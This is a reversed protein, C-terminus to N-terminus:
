STLLGKAYKAVTLAALRAIAAANPSCSTLARSLEGVPMDAYSGPSTCAGIYVHVREIRAMAILSVLRVGRAELRRRLAAAPRDEQDQPDQRDQPDQPDKCEFFAGPLSWGSPTTVLVNGGPTVIVGEAKDYATWLSMVCRSIIEAISPRDQTGLHGAIVCSAEM